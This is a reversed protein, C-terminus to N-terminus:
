APATNQTMARIPKPQFADSLYLPSNGSSYRKLAYFSTDRLLYTLAFRHSPSLYPLRQDQSLGQNTLFYNSLPHFYGCAM